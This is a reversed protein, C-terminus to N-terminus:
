GEMGKTEGGRGFVRAGRCTIIITINNNNNNFRLKRTWRAGARYSSNQHHGHSPTHAGSRPISLRPWASLIKM